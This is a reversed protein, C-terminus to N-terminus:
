LELRGYTGMTLSLKCATCTSLVVGLASSITYWWWDISDADMVVKRTVTLIYGYRNVVEGSRVYSNIQLWRGKEFAVNLPWMIWWHCIRSKVPLFLCSMFYAEQSSYYRVHSWYFMDVCGILIFYPMKSCISIHDSICYVAVQSSLELTLDHSPMM